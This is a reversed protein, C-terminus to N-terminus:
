DFVDTVKRAKEWIGSMENPTLTDSARALAKAYADRAAKPFNRTDGGRSSLPASLLFKTCAKFYRAKESKVKAAGTLKKKTAM